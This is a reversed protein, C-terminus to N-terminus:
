SGVSPTGTAPSRRASCSCFVLVFTIPLLLVDLLQDPSHRLKLLSRWALALGHRAARTPNM